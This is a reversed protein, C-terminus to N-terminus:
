RKVACSPLGGGRRRALGRPRSGSRVRDAVPETTALVVHQDQETRLAQQTVTLPGVLPHHMEYVAAGGSKVRQDAWWAAFETSRFSLEGVLTAPRPDQGARTAPRSQELRSYYPTSVGALRALEERRLGPM